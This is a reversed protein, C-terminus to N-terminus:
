SLLKTLYCCNPSELQLRKARRTGIPRTPTKTQESEDVSQESSRKKQPIYKPHLQQPDTTKVTGRSCTFKPCDKLVRWCHIYSFKREPKGHVSSTSKLLEKAKAIEDEESIGSIKLEKVSAICGIFRSVDARIICWKTEISRQPREPHDSDRRSNYYVTVKGWFIESSQGTGVTPDQSVHMWSLSLLEEKECSIKKGKGSAM